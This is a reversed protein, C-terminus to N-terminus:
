EGSVASFYNLETYTAGSPQLTSQMLSFGDVEIRLEPIVMADVSRQLARPAHVQKVRAMTIHPEFLGPSLGPAPVGELAEKVERHLEVLPERPEVGLWIVRPQKPTGFCGARALVVEFPSFRLTRLAEGIRNASEPEVEGIFGLTIHVHRTPSMRADESVCLQQQIQRVEKMVEDKLNISVFLRM